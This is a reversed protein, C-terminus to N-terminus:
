PNRDIYALNDPALPIGLMHSYALMGTHKGSCNHRNPTYAEGRVKLAEATTRDYPAHVGCLLDSEYVGTKAQISKVVALHEDTGSHSACILAVEQLTLGYIHMGGKELFPLAQFPKASSRTFTVLGPNGYWAALRGSSEVVASAGFHVSEVIDGRSLQFIPQYISNWNM